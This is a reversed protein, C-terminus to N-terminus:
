NASNRASASSAASEDHQHRSGSAVFSIPKRSGPSLFDFLVFCFLVFCVLVRLVEDIVAHLFQSGESWNNVVVRVREKKAEEQQKRLEEQQLKAERLKTPSGVWEQVASKIKEASSELVSQGSSGRKLEKKPVGWQELTQEIKREKDEKTMSQPRPSSAALKVVKKDEEEEESSSTTTARSKSRDPVASAGSTPCEDDSLDDSLYVFHLETSLSDEALGSSASSYRRRVGEM